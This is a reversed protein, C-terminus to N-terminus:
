AGIAPYSHVYFKRITETINWTGEWRYPLGLVSGATLAHQTGDADTITGAGSILYMFSGRQDKVRPYEGADCAWMACLGDAGDLLTLENATTAGATIPAMSVIEPWEGRLVEEASLFVSKQVGAPLPPKPTTHLYVKRITETIDWTGLWGYPLLLVSDPSLVHTTGDEDTITGAGSLIYMFSGRRDKVRPYVGPECEWIAFFGNEDDLLVRETAFEAGSAIPEMSIREPLTGGRVEDASLFVSPVTTTSTTM